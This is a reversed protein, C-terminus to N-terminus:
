ALYPLMQKRHTNAIPRLCDGGGGVAAAVPFGPRVGTSLIFSIITELISNNGINNFGENGFLLLNENLHNDKHHM